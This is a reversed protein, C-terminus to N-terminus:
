APFRTCLEQQCSGSVAAAQVDMSEFLMLSECDVESLCREGLFTPKTQIKSVDRHVLILVTGESAAAALKPQEAKERSRDRSFYFDLYKVYFPRGLL